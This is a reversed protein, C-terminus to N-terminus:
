AKSNNQLLVICLLGVIISIINVFVLKTGTGKRTLSFKNSKKITKAESTSFFSFSVSGVM